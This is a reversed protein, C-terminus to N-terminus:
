GTRQSGGSEGLMAREYALRNDHHAIWRLRRAIMVPLSALRQSQLEELTISGDTLAGWASWYAAGSALRVGGHDFCNCVSLAAEKTPTGSWFRLLKELAAKEKEQKRKDAEITKIRRARVAPLEKSKAHRIAGAARQVWYKSTEWMRVAKRMGAEIKEADREARRQSHHGVLIPQGLPIGDTIQEVQAHAREAEAARKDSYGDFREAREEAREVLSTDEDGIEGVLETRLDERDPTWMPAVFLGQKAAWIFGAARVREYVDAPLRASAYLRLENDEPSYTATYHIV